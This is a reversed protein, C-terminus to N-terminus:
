KPVSKKRCNTASCYKVDTTQEGGSRGCTGAPCRVYSTTGFSKGQASAERADFVSLALMALCAASITALLIRM